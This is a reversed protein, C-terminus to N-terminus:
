QNFRHGARNRRPARLRRGPSSRNFRRIAAPTQDGQIRTAVALLIEAEPHDEEEPIGAVRHIAEERHGEVAPIVQTVEVQRDAAVQTALIAAGLLDEEERTATAQRGEM